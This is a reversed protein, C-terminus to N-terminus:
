FSRQRNTRAGLGPIFEKKWRAGEVPTTGKGAKIEEPSELHCSKLQEAAVMEEM